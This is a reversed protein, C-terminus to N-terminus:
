KRRRRLVEGLRWSGLRWKDKTRKGSIQHSRQTITKELKWVQRREKAWLSERSRM